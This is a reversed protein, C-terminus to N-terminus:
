RNPGNREEIENILTNYLRMHEEVLGHRGRKAARSARRLEKGAMKALARDRDTQVRQLRVIGVGVGVLTVIISLLPILVRFM